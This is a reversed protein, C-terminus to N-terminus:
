DSYSIVRKRPAAQLRGLHVGHEPIQGGFTLGMTGDCWQGPGKGCVRCTGFVAREDYTLEMEEREYDPM